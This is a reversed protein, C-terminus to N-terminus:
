VFQENNNDADCTKIFDENVKQLNQIWEFDNHHFKQSTAFRLKDSMITKQKLMIKLM